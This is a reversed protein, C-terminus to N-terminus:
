SGSTGRGKSFRGFVERFRRSRKQEAARDQRMEVRMEKENVSKEKSPPTIGPGRDVAVPELPGFFLIARELADRHQEYWEEYPVEGEAPLRSKTQLRMRAEQYAQRDAEFEARRKELSGFQAEARALAGGQAPRFEAAADWNGERVYSMAINYLALELDSKWVADINGPRWTEQDEAESRTTDSQSLSRQFLRLAYHHLMRGEETRGQRQFSVGLMNVLHGARTLARGELTDDWGEFLRILIDDIESWRSLQSFLSCVNVANVWLNLDRKDLIQFSREFVSLYIEVAEDKLGKDCKIHGQMNRMALFTEEPVKEGELVREMAMQSLKECLDLKKLRWFANALNHLDVAKFDSVDLRELEHFLPDGAISFWGDEALSRTYTLTQVLEQLIVRKEEEVDISNDEVSTLMSYVARYLAEAERYRTADRLIRAKTKKILYRSASNQPWVILSMKEAKNVFELATGYFSKDAFFSAVNQLLRALQPLEVQNVESLHIVRIAHPLLYTNVLRNLVTPVGYVAAILRLVDLLYVLIEEKPLRQEIWFHVMPHVQLEPFSDAANNQEAISFNVLTGVAAAMDYRDVDAVCELQTLLAVPVASWHFCALAMLLKAAHPNSIEIQSLTVEWTLLVSQAHNKLGKIPQRLIKAKTKADEFLEVLREISMRCERMTAAAQAIALPLCGLENLLWELQDRFAQDTPRVLNQPLSAMFLDSGEGVEMPKVNLGNQTSVVSGVFRVDRTTFITFGRSPLSAGLDIGDITSELFVDASDANDIVLIIPELSCEISEKARKLSQPIDLHDVSVDSNRLKESIQGYDLIFHEPTDARIWFVYSQRVMELAFQIAIQTKSCFTLPLTKAFLLGSLLESGTGGLGWIAVRTLEGRSEAYFDRLWQAYHSRLRYNQCLEM